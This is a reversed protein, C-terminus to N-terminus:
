APTYRTVNTTFPAVFAVMVLVFVLASCDVCSFKSRFGADAECALAGAFLPFCMTHIGAVVPLWTPPRQTSTSSVPLASAPAKFTLLPLASASRRACSFATGGDPVVPRQAAAGCQELPVGCQPMKLM